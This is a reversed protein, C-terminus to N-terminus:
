EEERGVGKLRDTKDRIMESTQKLTQRAKQAQNRRLYTGIKDFQQSFGQMFGKNVARNKVEAARKSDSIKSLLTVQEGLGLLLVEGAMDVVALGRKSDFYRHELIRILADSEGAESSPLAAGRSAMFRKLLWMFGYLVLLVIALSFVINLLVPLLSPAEAPVASNKQLEVLPRSLYDPAPTAAPEQAALLFSPGGLILLFVLYWL